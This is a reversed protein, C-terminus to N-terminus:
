FEVYPKLRHLDNQTFYKSFRLDDLGKLPGNKRHYDKIERAQYFNLYPHKRLQSLTAKNLNLKLPQGEISFYELAEEPFGEIELLQNKDVYGGLQKGHRIIQRAYYPGIGPIKQLELTDNVNASIFEGKSIKTKYPKHLTDSSEQYIAKDDSYKPKDQTQRLSKVMEAAPRFEDAIRIFPALRDYDGKTLGYLQAFDEKRQYVGGAARYKYINRVQWKSLGLRLLQTSDATNPDFYFTEKTKAPTAYNTTQTSPQPNDYRLTDNNNDYTNTTSMGGGVYHFFAVAGGILILLVTIAIWDSKTYYFFSKFNM